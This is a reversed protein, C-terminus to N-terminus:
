SKIYKIENATKEKYKLYIRDKIRLDIEELDIDLGYINIIKDLNNWVNFINSDEEPMKVIINNELILNWRRGGIREVKSIKNSLNYYTSLINFLDNIQEKTKKDGSIILLYNFNSVDNKPINIIDGYEDILNYNVNDETYIAFPNYEVIDVKLDNPYIRKIYVDKVWYDKIINNKLDIIGIDRDSCYNNINEQIHSYNSYKIGNITVKGCSGKDLFNKQYFNKTINIIIDYNFLVLFFLLSLLVIWTLQKLRKLFFYYKVNNKSLM